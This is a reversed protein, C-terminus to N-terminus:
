AIPEVFLSSVGTSSHFKFMNSEGGEEEPDILKVDDPVQIKGEVIAALLRQIDIGEDDFQQLLEKCKGQNLAVRTSPRITALYKTGRFENGEMRSKFREKLIKEAEEFAKKAEKVVGLEDCLMTTTHNDLVPIEPGSYPIVIETAEQIAKFVKKQPDSWSPNPKTAM